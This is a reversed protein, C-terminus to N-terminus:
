GTVEQSRLRAGHTRVLADLLRHLTQEVRQENLTANADQLWFRLALSKEDSPTSTGRWVDFLRLDRVIHLQPDAAITDHLTDLLAQWSVAHAVWVALDRVVMPQRSADQPQPV